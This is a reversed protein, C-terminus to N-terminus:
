RSPYRVLPYPMAPCNLFVIENASRRQVLLGNPDACGFAPNQPASQQLLDFPGGSSQPQAGAIFRFVTGNPTARATEIVRQVYAPDTVSVRFVSDRTFIVTPQALCEEANLTVPAPFLGGTWAGFLWAHPPEARQQALAPVALSLLCAFLTFRRM